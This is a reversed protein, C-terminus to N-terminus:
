RHDPQHGMIVDYAREAPGYCDGATEELKERSRVTVLGRTSKIAGIGELVHLGVTVGSRRVCLLSAMVDQVIRVDAGSSRDIAMLIWRAVRAEVSFAGHAHASYGFQVAAFDKFRMTMQNLSPLEHLARSFNEADVRLATGAVFVLTRFFSKDGPRVVQNSMGEFGFMGAEIVVEGETVSLVSCICNVPFYVHDIVTNPELLVQGKRLSVEQLLPAFANLDPDTLKRLLRNRNILSM